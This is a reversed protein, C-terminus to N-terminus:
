HNYKQCDVKCIKIEQEKVTLKIQKAIIQLVFKQQIFSIKCSIFKFCIPQFLNWM